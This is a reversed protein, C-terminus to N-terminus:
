IKKMVAIDLALALKIITSSRLQKVEYDSLNMDYGFNKHSQSKTYLVETFYKIEDFNLIKLAEYFKNYFEKVKEEAKEKLECAREVSSTATRNYPIYELSFKQTIRPPLINIYKCQYFVFKKIEEVLKKSCADLDYMNETNSFFPVKIYDDSVNQIQLLEM